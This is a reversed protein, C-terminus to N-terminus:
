YRKDSLLSSAPFRGSYSARRAQIVIQKMETDPIRFTSLSAGFASELASIIEHFQSVTGEDWSSPPNSRLAQFQAWALSQEHTIDM